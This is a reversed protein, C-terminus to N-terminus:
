DRSWAMFVFKPSPTHSPDQGMLRQLYNPSVGRQGGRGGSSRAPTSGKSGPGANGFEALQIDLNDKTATSPSGGSLIANYRADREARQLDFLKRDGMSPTRIPSSGPAQLTSTSAPTQPSALAHVPTGNSQKRIHLPSPQEVTREFLGLDNCSGTDDSETSDLDLSPQSTYRIPSSTSAVSHPFYKQRLSPDSGPRFVGLQKAAVRDLIPKFLTSEFSTHKTLSPKPRLPLRVCREPSPPGRHHIIDHKTDELLGDRQNEKTERLHESTRLMRTPIQIVDFKEDSPSPHVTPVLSDSRTSAPAPTGPAGVFPNQEVHRTIASDLKELELGEELGALSDRYKQQARSVETDVPTKNTGSPIKKFEVHDTQELVSSRQSSPIRLPVVPSPLQLVDIADDSLDECNSIAVTQTQSRVASAVPSLSELVRGSTGQTCGLSQQVTTDDMKNIMDAPDDPVKVMSPPDQFPDDCSLECLAVGRCTHEHGPTDHSLGPRPPSDYTLDSGRCGSTDDHGGVSVPPPGLHYSMVPTRQTGVDQLESSAVLAEPRVRLPTDRDPWDLPCSQPLGATINTPDQLVRIEALDSHTIQFPSFMAPPGLDVRLVPLPVPIDIPSSPLPVLTAPDKSKNGLKAPSPTTKRTDQSNRVIIEPGYPGRISSSISGSKRFVRSMSGRGSHRSHRGLTRRLSAIATKPTPSSERASQKDPTACKTSWVDSGDPGAASQSHDKDTAPPSSIMNPNRLVYMSGQSGRLSEVAAKASLAGKHVASKFSGFWSQKKNLTLPEDLATRSPSDDDSAQPLM